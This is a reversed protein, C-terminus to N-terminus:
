EAELYQGSNKAENAEEVEALLNARLEHYALVQKAIFAPDAREEGAETLLNLGTAKEFLSVVFYQMREDGGDLLGPPMLPGWAPHKKITLLAGPLLHLMNTPDTFLDEPRVRGSALLVTMRPTNLYLACSNAFADSIHETKRMGSRLQSIYGYTVNLEKAMDGLQHGLENARYVLMSLLVSGPRQLEDMSLGGTWPVRTSEGKPGRVARLSRGDVPKEKQTPMTAVKSNSM